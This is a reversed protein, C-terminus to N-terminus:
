KRPKTLQDGGIFFEGRNRIYKTNKKENCIDAQITKESTNKKKKKADSHKSTPNALVKM